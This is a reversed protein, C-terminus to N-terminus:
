TKLWQPLRDSRIMDDFSQRERVVSWQAGNVMVEAVLPRQNYTSAMSSGYAGAAMLCLLDGPKQGPLAFDDGFSDSSECVPGAVTYSRKEGQTQVVPWIEHRADYLAPRMLDNMGADVILFTKQERSNLTIVKTLLVGANAMILRGPEFSLDVELGRMVDLVMRAYDQVRIAGEEGENASHLVGLGGGCDLRAVKSGLGRLKETLERLRQYAERLPALEMIQSGIHVALGVPNLNPMSAAKIYLREADTFSLGFKNHDFGTSIKAHGGAGIAPNVRLAIDVKRNKSNAIECLRELEGETEVNIQYLRAEIAFALEPDTKGVGSYIIKNEPIGAALSKRIEGESVVDAGAGAKALTKLVALNGNAKVAFFLNINRPAFADVFVKVHRTMTAASYVYVPTGTQAAIERLDVGEAHLVGNKYQFHHM